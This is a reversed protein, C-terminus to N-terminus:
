YSPGFFRDAAEHRLSLTVIMNDNDDLRWGLDSVKNGKKDMKGDLRPLIAPKGKRDYDFDGTCKIPNFNFKEILFPAPLDGQDTLEDKDFM